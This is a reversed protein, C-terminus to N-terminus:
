IFRIINRRELTLICLPPFKSATLIVCFLIKWEIQCHTLCLLKVKLFTIGGERFYVVPATAKDAWKESGCLM